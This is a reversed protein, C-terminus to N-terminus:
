EEVDVRPDIQGVGPVIVNYYYNGKARDEICVKFRRSNSDSAVLKRNLWQSNPTKGVIMIELNDFDVNAYMSKNPELKITFADYETKRVKYVHKVDIKSDGYAIKLPTPSTRDGCEDLEGAEPFSAFRVVEVTHCGAMLIALILLM